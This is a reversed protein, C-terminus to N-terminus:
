IFKTRGQFSTSAPPATSCVAKLKLLNKNLMQSYQMRKAISKVYAIYRSIAENEITTYIYLYTDCSFENGKAKCNHDNRM